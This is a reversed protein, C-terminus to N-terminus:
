FLFKPLRSVVTMTADRFAPAWVTRLNDGEFPNPVGAHWDIDRAAQVADKWIAVNVGVLYTVPNDTQKLGLSVADVAHDAADALRGGRLDEVAGFVEGGIDIGGFLSGAGHLHRQLGAPGRLWPQDSAWQLFPSRKYHALDGLFSTAQQWTRTYRGTTSAARTLLDAVGISGVTATLGQYVPNTRLEDLIHRHGQGGHGAATSSPGAASAHRQQNANTHLVKHAHRLVDAAAHVQRAWMTEWDRRFADASPGHWPTQHLLQDLTSRHRDLLAAQQEMLAGLRELAEPDAGLYTTM